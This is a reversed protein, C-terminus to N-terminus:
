SVSSAILATSFLPMTNRSSISLIQAGAVAADAAVDRAFAHLAIQQRQDFAGRDRGLMAGHLGVVDQEDSRAGEMDRFGDSRSGSNCPRRGIRTSNCASVRSSM